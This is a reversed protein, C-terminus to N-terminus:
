RLYRIIVIGSGVGPAGQGNSGQLGGTGGGSGYPLFTGRQVIDYLRGPNLVNNNLMSAGPGASSGGAGGKPGLSYGGYGGSFGYGTGGGSNGQTAGGGGTGGGGGSGGAHGPSDTTGGAGGALATIGNFTSNQSQGGVVVSYPGSTFASNPHHVLGGGGGGGPWEGVGGGAVVLVEAEFSSYTTFTGSTAFVHVTYLGDYTVIGGTAGPINVMPFPSTSRGM